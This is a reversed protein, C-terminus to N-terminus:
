LEDVTRPAYLLDFAGCEPGSTRWDLTNELFALNATSVMAPIWAKGEYRSESLGRALDQSDCKIRM